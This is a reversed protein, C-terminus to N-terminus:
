WPGPPTWIGQQKRGLRIDYVLPGLFERLQHIINSFEAPHPIDRLKTIFANWQKIKATIFRDSLATIEPPLELNRAKLTRTIAEHLDTRSFDFHRSLIWLDYFDKMRSNLEGLKAMAEFKEAVISERSYGQLIVAPYNLIPPLSVNESSPFIVDGFGIDIQIRIRAGDLLANFRLRVGEFDTGTVIREADINMTDFILGDPETDVACIDRIIGVLSQISNETRGLLDIDMTPRTIASHWARLLLAGKLVFIDAHASGSLRRLFRNMAFSQLLENFPIREARAISLLRQRVSAAMDKAPKNKM